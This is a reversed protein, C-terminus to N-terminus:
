FRNLILLLEYPNVAKKMYIKIIVSNVRENSENM